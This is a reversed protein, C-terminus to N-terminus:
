APPARSPRQHLWLELDVVFQEVQPLPAVFALSSILQPIGFDLIPMHGLQCIACPRGSVIDDSHSVSGAAMAFLLALLALGVLTQVFNSYKASNRIL